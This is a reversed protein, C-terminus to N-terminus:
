RLFNGGNVCIVQGVIFSARPSCLFAVLAAVEHPYGQRGVLTAGWTDPRAPQGTDLTTTDIPGPAVCNVRIGHRTVNKALAYTFGVEAAKTTAYTVSPDDGFSGHLGAGSSVVVITGSRRAIMAPLVAQVCLFVGRVNVALAADFAAVPVDVIGRTRGGKIGANAVLIDVAGFRDVAAACLRSVADPDGVDAQVALAQAGHREVADVARVAGAASGLYNVVVSAGARALEEAVARGIGRSAGTVLAVQGALTGRPIAGLLAAADPSSHTPARSVSL